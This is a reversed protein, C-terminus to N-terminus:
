RRDLDALTRKLVKAQAAGPKTGGFAGQIDELIATYVKACIPNSKIRSIYDTQTEDRAERDLRLVAATIEDGYTPLLASRPPWKPTRRRAHTLLAVTAYAYVSTKMLQASIRMAANLVPADTSLTSIATTIAANFKQRPSLEEPATEGSPMEDAM